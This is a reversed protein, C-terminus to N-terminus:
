YYINDGLKDFSKELDIYKIMNLLFMQIFRFKYYIIYTLM